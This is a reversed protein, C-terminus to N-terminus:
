AKAQKHRALENEQEIAMDYEDDSGYDDSDHPRAADETSKKTTARRARGAPASETATAGKGKGASASQAATAGKGKGKKGKAPAM